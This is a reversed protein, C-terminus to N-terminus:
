LRRMKSSLYFVLPVKKRQQRVEVWLRKFVSKHVAAKFIFIQWCCQLGPGTISLPRSPLPLSEAARPLIYQLWEESPKMFEVRPEQGSEAMPPLTDTDPALSVIKICRSVEHLGEHLAAWIRKFAVVGVRISCTLTMPATELSLHM